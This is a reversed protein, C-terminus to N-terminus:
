EVCFWIQLINHPACILSACSVEHALLAMKSDFKGSVPHSTNERERERSVLAQTVSHSTDLYNIQARHKQLIFFVSVEMKLM